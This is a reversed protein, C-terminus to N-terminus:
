GNELLIIICVLSENTQFEVPICYASLWPCLFYMTGTKVNDKVFDVKLLCFVM